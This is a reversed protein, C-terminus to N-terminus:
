PELLDIAWRCAANGMRIVTARASEYDVDTARLLEFPFREQPWKYQTSTCINVRCVYPPNARLDLWAVLVVTIVPRAGARSPVRLLRM